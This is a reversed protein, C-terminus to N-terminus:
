IMVLYGKTFNLNMILIPHEHAREGANGITLILAKGLFVHNNGSIQKEM